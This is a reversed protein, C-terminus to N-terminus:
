IHDGVEVKVVTDILLRVVDDAHRDSAERIHRIQKETERKLNEEVESTGKQHENKFKNFAATREAMYADLEKKADTKAQNLRAKRANRAEQIIKAADKEAQLLRAIGKNDTSM